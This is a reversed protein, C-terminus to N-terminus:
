NITSVGLRKSSQSKSLGSIVASVFPLKKKLNITSDIKSPARNAGFKLLSLSRLLELNIFNKGFDGEVETFIVSYKTLSFVLYLVIAIGNVLLWRVKEIAENAADAM